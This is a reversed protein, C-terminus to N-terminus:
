GPPCTPMIALLGCVSVQTGQPSPPSLDALGGSIKLEEWPWGYMEEWDATTWGWTVMRIRDGNEHPVWTDQLDIRALGQETHVQMLLSSPTGVVPDDPLPEPVDELAPGSAVAGVPHMSEPSLHVQWDWAKLAVDATAGAVVGGTGARSLSDEAQITVQRGVPPGAPGGLDEAHVQIQGTQIEEQVGDSTVRLLYSGAAGDLGAHDPEVDLPERADLQAVAEEPDEPLEGDPVALHITSTTAMDGLLFALEARPPDPDCDQNCEATVTLPEVTPRDGPLALPLQVATPAEPDSLIGLALYPSSSPDPDIAVALEFTATRNEGDWASTNWLDPTLNLRLSQWGSAQAHWTIRGDSLDEHTLDEVGASGAPEMAQSSRDSVPDALAGALGALALGLAALPILPRM